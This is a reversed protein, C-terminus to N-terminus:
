LGFRCAARLRVPEVRACFTDDRERFAAHTREMSSFVCTLEVCTARNSSASAGRSRRARSGEELLPRRMEEVLEDRTVVLTAAHPDRRILDYGLPASDGAVIDESRGDEIAGSWARM